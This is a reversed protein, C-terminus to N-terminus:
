TMSLSLMCDAKFSSILDLFTGNIGHADEMGTEPFIKSSFSNSYM